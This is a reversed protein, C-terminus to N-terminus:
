WENLINEESLSTFRSAAMKSKTLYCLTTGQNEQDITWYDATPQVKSMMKVDSTWYDATPQVKSMM